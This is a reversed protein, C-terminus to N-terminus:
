GGLWEESAPSLDGGSIDSLAWQSFLFMCLVLSFIRVLEYLFAHPNYCYLSITCPMVIDSPIPIVIFNTSVFFAAHRGRGMMLLSATGM